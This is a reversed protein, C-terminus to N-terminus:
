VSAFLVAVPLCFKRIQLLPQLSHSQKRNHVTHICLCRSMAFFVKLLQFNKKMNGIYSIAFPTPKWICADLLQRHAQQM